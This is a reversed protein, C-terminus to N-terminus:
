TAVCTSGPLNSTRSLIRVVWLLRAFMTNGEANWTGIVILWFLASRGVQLEGSGGRAIMIELGKECTSAVSAPPRQQRRRGDVLSGGQSPYKRMGWILARWSVVFSPIGWCRIWSGARMGRARLKGDFKVSEMRGSEVMGSDWRRRCKGCNTNRVHASGGKPNGM